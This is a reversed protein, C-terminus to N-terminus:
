HTKNAAAIELLRHYFLNPEEWNPAHGSYKFLFLKKKPAKITEFYQRALEASTIHDYKGVFFYVPISFQKKKLLNTKEGNMYSFLLENARRNPTMWDLTKYDDYLEMPNPLTAGGYSYLYKGSLMMFKFMDDLGNKFGEEESFPIAALANLTATDKQLTAQKLVYTIAFKDSKGPHVLQGVGIYAAYDNPHQQVLSAGILSGWSHGIVFIKEQLFTKKLFQTVLHADEVYLEPALAVTTDSQSKGCNRQDWSVFVFDKTLDKNYKRNMPTAPWSPGGHIFLLVPKQKSVGKIELYQNIGNIPLLFSTDVALKEPQSKRSQGWSCVFLFTCFLLTVIFKNM